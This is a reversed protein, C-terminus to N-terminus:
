FQGVWQLQANDLRPSMALGLSSKPAIASVDARVSDVAESPEDLVFVGVYTALLGTGLALSVAGLLKQQTGNDVLTQAEARTWESVQSSDGYGQSRTFRDHDQIGLGYLVAGAITFAAGTTVTALPLSNHLWKASSWGTSVTPEPSVVRSKGRPKDPQPQPPVVGPSSARNRLNELLQKARERGQPDTRPHALFAEYKETAAQLDGMREYCNGINFLLDPDGDIAHAQIFHELAKRYLGLAHLRNGEDNLRTVREDDPAKSASLELANENSLPEASQQCHATSTDAAAAAFFALAICLPYTSFHRVSRYVQLKM